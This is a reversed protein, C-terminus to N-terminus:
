TIFRSAPEFLFSRRGSRLFSERHAVSEFQLLAAGMFSFLVVGVMKFNAM